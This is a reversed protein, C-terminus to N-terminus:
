AGFGPRENRALAAFPRGNQAHIGASDIIERPAARQISAASVVEVGAPAFM